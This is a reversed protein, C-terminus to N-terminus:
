TGDIKSSSVRHERATGDKESESCHKRESAARGHARIARRLAGCGGCRRGRDCVQDALKFDRMLGEREVIPKADYHV